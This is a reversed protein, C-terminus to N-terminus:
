VTFSHVDSVKPWELIINIIDLGNANPLNICLEGNNKKYQSSWFKAGLKCGMM